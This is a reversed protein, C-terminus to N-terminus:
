RDRRAGFCVEVACNYFRPSASKRSTRAGPVMGLRPHARGTRTPISSAPRTPRRASLTTPPLGNRYHDLLPSQAEDKFRAITKLGLNLRRSLSSITRLFHYPFSPGLEAFSLRTTLISSSSFEERRRVTASSAAAPSRDLCGPISQPLLEHRKGAPSRSPNAVGFVAAYWGECEYEGRHLVATMTEIRKTSSRRRTASMTAYRGWSFSLWSAGDHDGPMASKEVLNGADRRSLARLLPRLWPLYDMEGGLKRVEDAERLTQQRSIPHDCKPAHSRCAPGASRAPSTHRNLLPRPNLTSTQTPYAAVVM